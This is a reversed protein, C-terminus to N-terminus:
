FLIKKVNLNPHYTQVRNFTVDIETSDPLNYICQPITTFCNNNMKLVRLSQLCSFSKPLDTLYNFSIDLKELTVLSCIISPLDHLHNRNMYLHKLKKMNMLYFTDIPYYPLVANINLSILCSFEQFHFVSIDYSAFVNIKEINCVSNWISINDRIRYSSKIIKHLYHYKRDDYYIFDDYYYDLISQHDKKILYYWLRNNSSIEHFLQSVRSCSVLDDYPLLTFILLIIESPIM